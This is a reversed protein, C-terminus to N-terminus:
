EIPSLKSHQNDQGVMAWVNFNGDITALRAFFDDFLKTTLQLPAGSGNLSLVNEEVLFQAYQDKLAALYNRPITAEESRGRTQLREVCVDVDTDLYLFLDFPTAALVEKALTTYCDPM